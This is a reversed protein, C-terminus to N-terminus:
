LNYKIFTFLLLKPCTKDMKTDMKSVAAATLKVISNLPFFPFARLKKNFHHPIDNSIIPYSIVFHCSAITPYQIIVENTPLSGRNQRQTANEEWGTMFGVLYWIM